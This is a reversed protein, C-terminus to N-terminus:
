PLPRGNYIRPDPEDSTAILEDIKRVVSEAKALADIMRDRNELGEIIYHHVLDYLDSEFQTRISKPRPFEPTM